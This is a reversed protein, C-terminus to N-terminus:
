KIKIETYRSHLLRAVGMYTVKFKVKSGIKKDIVNKQPENEGLDFVSIDSTTGVFSISKNIPTIEKSDVDLVGYDLIARYSKKLDKSVESTHGISAEGMKGDPINRKRKLEIITAEYSFVSTSLNKFKKGTMPNTGLFVSEGIRFHNIKKPLGKNVLPLTISTGGSIFKFKTKFKAELLQSYLSLQIMKDYTPEIGYMCGLNAGIGLIKVNKLKFCNTYFKILNKGLVGERLEGLELMIIIKHIKNQLKAEKNIEKITELSTNLSIDAYQVVKKIDKISPPKIYLTIIKPNIEKIIRLNSFRSDGISHVKKIIPDKLIKTLIKKNGSLIKTVLTFKIDKQSLIDNVMKINEIIKKTDVILKSM